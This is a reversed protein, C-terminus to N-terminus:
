LNPFYVERIHKPIYEKKPIAGDFWSQLGYFYGKVGKLNFQVVVGDKRLESLSVSLGTVYRKRMEDDLKEVEKQGLLCELIEITKCFRNLKGICALGREKWNM